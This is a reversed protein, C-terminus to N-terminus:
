VAEGGSVTVTLGAANGKVQLTDGAMMVQVGSWQLLGSAPVPTAYLIANSASATGGTPVISISVNIPATTTNCVDIQKLYTRMRDVVTYATAYSTTVAQQGLRTPTVSQYNAM